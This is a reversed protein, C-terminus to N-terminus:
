KWFSPQTQTGRIRCDVCEADSSTYGAPVGMVYFEEIPVAATNSGTLYIQVENVGTKPASFYDSDLTCTYPYLPEWTQPLQREFIFIRKTQVPCVSIDGIVPEAPNVTNHINGVASSPQADFISGLQETNKKLNTWFNYADGSLAYQNVQITYETEIKESNSPVRTLPNQYIVTQSLRATSGLIVNSSTDSAFCYYIDQQQSRPAPGSVTSMYDSFYKAHFKWTESFDWRYYKTSNTPDHTNVYLQMGGAVINFGVSDIPPNPSVAEYDSTYQQDNTTKIALRYKLTNNLSLSDSTYAGSTSETLLYTNNDSSEISVIAGTVPSVTSVGSINVTRSLKVATKGATNIAGEVVLYSNPANIVPPSYPKKCSMSLATLLLLLINIKYTM